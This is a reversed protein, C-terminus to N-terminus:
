DVQLIVFPSPFSSICVCVEQSEAWVYPHHTFERTLERVVEIDHRVHAESITELTLTFRMPLM